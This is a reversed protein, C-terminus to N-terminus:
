TPGAVGTTLAAPNTIDDPQYNNTIQLPYLNAIVFRCAGREKRIGKLRFSIKLFHGLIAYNLYPLRPSITSQNLKAGSCQVRAAACRGNSRDDSVTLSNFSWLDFIILSRGCGTVRHGRANEGHGYRQIARRLVNRCHRRRDSLKSNSSDSNLIRREM